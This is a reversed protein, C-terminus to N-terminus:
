WTPCWGLRTGNGKRKGSGSGNGHLSELIPVLQRATQVHVGAMNPNDLVRALALATMARVGTSCHIESEEIVAQEVEGIPLTQGPKLSVVNSKTTGTARYRACRASEAEKCVDCRCGQRYGSTGHTVVGIRRGKRVILRYRLATRDSETFQRAM